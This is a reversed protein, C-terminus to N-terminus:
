KGKDSKNSKEIASRAILVEGSGLLSNDNITLFLQLDMRPGDSYVCYCPLSRLTKQAGGEKIIENVAMLEPTGDLVLYQDPAMARVIIPRLLGGFRLISRKIDALPMKLERAPFADSISLQSPKLHLFRPLEAEPIVPIFQSSDLGEAKEIGTFCHLYDTELLMRHQNLSLFIELDMRPSDSNVCFCPLWRLTKEHGEDQLEWVSKLRRRGDLVLYENNEDPRVVIPRLLGGFELIGQKLKSLPAEIERKPFSLSVTLQSPKLLIFRPLDPMDSNHPASPTSHLNM